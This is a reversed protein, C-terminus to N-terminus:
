ELESLYKKCIDHYMKKVVESPIDVFEHEVKLEKVLNIIKNRAEESMFGNDLTFAKVKLKYKKVLEYLVFTSDKGGSFGVAADYKHGSNKIRSLFNKELNNYDHLKPEIEEYARCFNCVGNSDFRINKVTKDNICKTCIQNNLEKVIKKDIQEYLNTLEKNSLNDLNKGYHPNVVENFRQIFLESLKDINRFKNLIVIGIKLMGFLSLKVKKYDRNGAKVGMM